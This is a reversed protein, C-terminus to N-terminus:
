ENFVEQIQEETAEPTPPLLREQTKARILRIDIAIDEVLMELEDIYQLLARRDACALARPNRKAVDEWQADRARIADLDVTM